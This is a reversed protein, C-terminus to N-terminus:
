NNCSEKEEDSFTLMAEIIREKYRMPLNEVVYASKRGLVQWADMRRLDEESYNM